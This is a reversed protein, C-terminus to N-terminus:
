KENTPNESAKKEAEKEAKKDEIKKNLSVLKRSDALLEKGRAEDFEIVDGVKYKKGNIKDTFALEINLKYKM